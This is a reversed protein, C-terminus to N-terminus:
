LGVDGRRYVSDVRRSKSERAELRFGHRYARGAIQNGVLSRRDGVACSEALALPDFAGEAQSSREVDNKEVFRDVVACENYEYNLGDTTPTVVAGRAM